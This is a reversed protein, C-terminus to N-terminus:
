RVWKGKMNAGHRRWTREEDEGPRRRTDETNSTKRKRSPPATALVSCSKTEKETVTGGSDTGPSQVPGSTRRLSGNKAAGPSATSQPPRPAFLKGRQGSTKRRDTRNKTGVNM